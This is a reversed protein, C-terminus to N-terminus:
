IHILSLYIHYQREPNQAAVRARCPQRCVSRRLVRVSLCVRVFLGACGVVPGMGGPEVLLLLRGDIVGCLPLRM